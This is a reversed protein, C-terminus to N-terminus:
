YVSLSSNIRQIQCTPKNHGYNLYVAFYWCFQCGTVFINRKYRDYAPAVAGRGVAFAIALGAPYILRYQNPRHKIITINCTKIYFESYTFKIIAASGGGNGGEDGFDRQGKPFNGPVLFFLFKKMMMPPMTATTTITAAM